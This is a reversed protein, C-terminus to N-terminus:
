RHKKGSLVVQYIALARRVAANAALASMTSGAVAAVARASKTDSGKFQRLWANPPLYERPEYFALVHVARVAGRPGLVTMFTAPRTRVTHTSILAYGMTHGAKKGIYIWQLRSRLTRGCLKALATSQDRTLFAHRRDIADAHPFALKLAADKSYFVGAHAEGSTASAAVLAVACVLLPSRPPRPM